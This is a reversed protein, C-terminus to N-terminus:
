TFNFGWIEINLCEFSGSPTLPPNNYTPCNTTYGNLLDSSIYLGFDGNGGGFAIFSKDTVIHYQNEVSGRYYELEKKENDLKWLFCEGSGYFRKCVHIGESLYAGYIYGNTDLIALLFSGSLETEECKNLLTTITSGHDVVSFVLEWKQCERYYPPLIKRLKEALFISIVINECSKRGVLEINPHVFVENLDHNIDDLISKRASKRRREKKKKTSEYINLEEEFIPSTIGINIIDNIDNNYSSTYSSINSNETANFLQSITLNANSKVNNSNINNYSYSNFDSNNFSLQSPIATISNTKSKNRFFAQFVSSRRRPVTISKNSENNISYSSSINPGIIEVNNNNNNNSFDNQNIQKLLDESSDHKEKKIDGTTCINYTGTIPVTKIIIGENINNNLSTTINTDINNNDLSINIVKNERTNPEQSNKNIINKEDEINDYLDVKSTFTIYFHRMENLISDHEYKTLDEISENVKSIYGIKKPLQKEYLLTEKPNYNSISYNRKKIGFDYFLNDDITEDDDNYENEENYTVLNKPVTKPKTNLGSTYSLSRNKKYSRSNYYRDIQENIIKNNNSM